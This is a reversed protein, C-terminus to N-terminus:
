RGVGLSGEAFEYETRGPARYEYEFTARCWWRPCFVASFEFDIVLVLVVFWSGRVVFRLGVDNTSM